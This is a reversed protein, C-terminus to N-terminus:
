SQISAASSFTSGEKKVGGSSSILHKEEAAKCCSYATSPPEQAHGSVPSTRLIYSTCPVTVSRLSQWTLSVRVNSPVNGPCLQCRRDARSSSCTKNPYVQQRREAHVLLINKSSVHRVGGASFTCCLCTSSPCFSHFGPEPCLRQSLNTERPASDQQNASLCPVLSVDPWRGKTTAAAVCALYLSTSRNAQCLFLLGMVEREQPLPQAQLSISGPRTLALGPHSGTVHQMSEALRPLSMGARFIVAKRWACLTSHHKTHTKQKTEGPALTACSSGKWCHSDSFIYWIDKMGKELLPSDRVRLTAKCM